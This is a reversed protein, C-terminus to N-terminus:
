CLGELYLSEMLTDKPTRLCICWKVLVAAPLAARLEFRNMEFERRQMTVRCIILAIFDVRIVLVADNHIQFEFM